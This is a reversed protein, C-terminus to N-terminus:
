ILLSLPLTQPPSFRSGQIEITDLLEKPRSDTFSSLESPQGNPQLKRFSRKIPTEAGTEAATKQSRQYAAQLQKKYCQARFAFFGLLALAIVGLPVGLGAGITVSNSPGASSPTIPPTAASTSAPILSSTFLASQVTMTSSISVTSSSFTSSTFYSLSTVAPASTSLASSTSPSPSMSSYGITTLVSPTGAFRLANKGTKCDCSNLTGGICCYTDSASDECKQVREGGDVADKPWM